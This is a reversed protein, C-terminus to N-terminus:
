DQHTNGNKNDIVKEEFANYICDDCLTFSKKGDRSVVTNLFVVSTSSGCSDCKEKVVLGICINGIFFGVTLVFMWSIYKFLKAFFGSRKM